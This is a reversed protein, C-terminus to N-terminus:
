QRSFNLSNHCIWLILKPMLVLIHLIPKLRHLATLIKERTNKRRRSSYTQTITPQMNTQTDRSNKNSKLLRNKKFFFCM